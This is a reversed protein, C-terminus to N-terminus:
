INKKAKEYNHFDAVNWDRQWIHFCRNKAWHTEENLKSKPFFYNQTKIKSQQINYDDYFRDWVLAWRHRHHRRDLCLYKRVM